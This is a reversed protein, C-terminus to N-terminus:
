GCDERFLSVSSGVIRGSCLFQVIWLEGRDSFSFKGCDEGFLSVSSGM